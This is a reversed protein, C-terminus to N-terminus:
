KVKLPKSSKYGIQAMYTKGYDLVRNVVGSQYGNITENFHLVHKKELPYATTLILGKKLSYALVGTLNLVAIKGRKSIRLSFLITKKVPTEKKENM